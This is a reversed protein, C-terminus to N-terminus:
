KWGLTIELAASKLGAFYIEYRRQAPSARFVSRLFPGPARRNPPLSDAGPVKGKFVKLSHESQHAIANRIWFAQRILTQNPESIQAFPRGENVFLAATGVLTKLSSLSLYDKDGQLLIQRFHKKSRFEAFRYNGTASSKPGCVVEMLAEELMSEWVTCASLFTSAYLLEVDRSQLRGQAFQDEVRKCCRNLADVRRALRGTYRSLRNM